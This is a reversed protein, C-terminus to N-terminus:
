LVNQDREKEKVYDKWKIFFTFKILSGIAMAIGFIIIADLYRNHNPEIFIYMVTAIAVTNAIGYRPNIVSAILTIVLAIKEAHNVVFLDKIEIYGNHYLFQTTMATLSIVIFFAYFIVKSGDSWEADHKFIKMNALIWVISLTVLTDFGTLLIQQIYYFLSQDPHYNRAITIVSMIILSCITVQFYHVIKKTKQLDM